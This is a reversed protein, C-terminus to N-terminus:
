VAFKEPQRMFAFRFPTLKQQVKVRQNLQKMKGDLDLGYVSFKEKAEGYFSTASIGLGVILVTEKVLRM